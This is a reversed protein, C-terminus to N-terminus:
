KASGDSLAFAPSEERRRKAALGYAAAHVMPRHRNADAEALALRGMRARCDSTTRVKARAETAVRSARGHRRSHSSSAAERATRRRPATPVGGMGRSVGPRGQALRPSSGAAVVHLLPCAIRVRPYAIRLCFDDSLLCLVKGLLSPSNQVIYCLERPICTM